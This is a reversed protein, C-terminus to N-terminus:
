ERQPGAVPEFTIRDYIESLPIVAEVSEFSSTSDLGISEELLWEDKARRRYVESSRPEDPRAETLKEHIGNIVRCFVTAHSAPPNTKYNQYLRRRQLAARISIRRGFATPENRLKPTRRNKMTGAVGPMTPTKLNPGAGRPRSTSNM